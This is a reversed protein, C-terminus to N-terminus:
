RTERPKRLILLSLCASILVVVPSLLGSFEPVPVASFALEGWTDPGVKSRDHPWLMLVQAALQFVGASFGIKNASQFLSMQIKFEYTPHRVDLNPDNSADLSSAGQAGGPIPISVWSGSDGRYADLRTTATSTWTIQFGFDDNDLIPDADHEGDLMVLGGDDKEAKGASVFDILIYLFNNDHKTRAYATGNGTWEYPTAPGIYAALTIQESDQWEEPTTWRGDLVVSNQAAFCTTTKGTQAQVPTMWSLLLLAMLLPPVLM